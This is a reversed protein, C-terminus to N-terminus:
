ASLKGGLFTSKDLIVSISKLRFEIHAPGKLVRYEDTPVLPVRGVFVGPVRNALRCLYDFAPKM